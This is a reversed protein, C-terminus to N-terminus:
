HMLAPEVRRGDRFSRPPRITTVLLLHYSHAREQDHREEDQDARKRVDEADVRTPWGIAAPDALWALWIREPPGPQLTSLACRPRDSERGGESSADAEGQSFAQAAPAPAKEAPAGEFSVRPLWELWERMSEDADALM